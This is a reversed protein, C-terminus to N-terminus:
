KIIGQVEKLSNLPKTFLKKKIEETPQICDIVMVPKAGARHAAIIGNPADELIIAEDPNISIAKCAELFIDPAPKGNEVMDGTVIADFNDAALHAKELYNKVRHTKESTGIATKLNNEKAYQLLELLGDKIPMGKNEIYTDIYDLVEKLLRDFDFDQGLLSKFRTKIKEKKVGKLSNIFEESVKTEFGMKKTISLFAKTYLKETDFMVGDMDFIIAKIKKM